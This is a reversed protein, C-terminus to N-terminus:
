EHLPFELIPEATYLDCECAIKLATRPDAGAKLAGLAYEDGSGITFYEGILPGSPYQSDSFYYVEGNPRVLLAQVLFQEAHEVDIVCDKLSNLWAVFREPEGVQSSSIGVLSGDKLRHVKRKLGVPHADGAYARSDAYMVGNQYVITTM